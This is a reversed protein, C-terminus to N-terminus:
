LEWVSQLPNVWRWVEFLIFPFHCINSFMLYISEPKLLKTALKLKLDHYCWSPRMMYVAFFSKILFIQFQGRQYLSTTPITSMEIRKITIIPKLKKPWVQPPCCYYSHSAWSRECWAVWWEWTWLRLVFLINNIPLSDAM